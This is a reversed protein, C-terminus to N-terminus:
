HVSICSIPVANQECQQATQKLVESLSLINTFFGKIKYWQKAWQEDVKKNKCLIFINLLQAVDHILPIIDQCLSDSMIMCINEDHMDTMFDVCYDTDASKHLSKVFPRLQEVANQYDLSNDDIKNDLWILRLNQVIRVNISQGQIINTSHTSILESNIGDDPQAAVTSTAQPM